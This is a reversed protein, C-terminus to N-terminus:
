YHCHYLYPNDIEMESPDVYDIVVDMGTKVAEVISSIESISRYNEMVAEMAANAIKEAIEMHKEASHVDTINELVALVIRQKVETYESM